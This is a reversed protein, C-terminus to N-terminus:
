NTQRGSVTTAQQATALGPVMSVLLAAGALMRYLNSTM